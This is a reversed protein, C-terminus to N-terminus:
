IFIRFIRNLLKPMGIPMSKIEWNETIGQAIYGNYCRNSADAWGDVSVNLYQFQCLMDFLKKETTLKLNNLHSNMFTKRTPVRYSPDKYKEYQNWAETNILSVPIMLKAFLKLLQHTGEQQQQSKIGYQPRATLFTDITQSKNRSPTGFINIARNKNINSVPNKKKIEELWNEYAQEHKFKIHMKLNSSVNNNASYTIKPNNIKQCENCDWETKLLGKRPNSFFFEIEFKPNFENM